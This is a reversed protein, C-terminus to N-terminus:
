VVHVRRCSGVNVRVYLESVLWFGVIVLSLSQELHESVWALFFIAENLALLHALEILVGLSIVFEQFLLNQQSMFLLSSKLRVVDPAEELM